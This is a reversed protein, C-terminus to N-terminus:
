QVIAFAAQLIIAFFHFNQLLENQFSVYIFFNVNWRMKNEQLPITQKM